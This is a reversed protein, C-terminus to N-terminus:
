AGAVSVASLGTVARSHQLVVCQLSFGGGSHPIQGRGTERNAIDDASQILQFSSPVDSTSNAIRGRKSQGGDSGAHSRRETTGREVLGTSDRDRGDGGFFDEPIICLVDAQEPGRWKSGLGHKNRHELV